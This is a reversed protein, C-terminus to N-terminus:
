RCGKKNQALSLGLYTLLDELKQVSVVGLQNIGLLQERTRITLDGLTRIGAEELRLLIRLSLDFDVLHAKMLRELHLRPEDYKDFDCM